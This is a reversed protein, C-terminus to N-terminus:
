IKRKRTKIMVITEIDLLTILWKLWSVTYLYKFPICGGRVLCVTCWNCADFLNIHLSIKATQKLTAHYWYIRYPCVTNKWTLCTHHGSHKSLNFATSYVVRSLDNKIIQGQYSLVSYIVNVSNDHTKGAFFSIFSAAALVEATVHPVGIAVPLPGAARWSFKSRQVMGPKEEGHAVATRLLRPSAPALRCLSFIRRRRLM